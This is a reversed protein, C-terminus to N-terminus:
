SKSAMKDSAQKLWEEPSLPVQKFEGCWENRHVVPFISELDSEHEVVQPPYRRCRGFFDSLIMDKYFFKCDQCKM